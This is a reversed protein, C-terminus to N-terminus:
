LPTQRDPSVQGAKPAKPRGDNEGQRLPYEGRGVARNLSRTFAVAFLDARESPEAKIFAMAFVLTTPTVGVDEQCTEFALRSMNAQAALEQSRSWRRPPAKCWSQVYCTTWPDGDEDEGLVM